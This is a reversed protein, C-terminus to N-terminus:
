VVVHVESVDDLEKITSNVAKIVIIEWIWNIQCLMVSNNDNLNQTLIDSYNFLSVSTFRHFYFCSHEWFSCNLFAVKINLVHLGLFQM